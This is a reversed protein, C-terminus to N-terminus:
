APKRAAVKKAPAKKVPAKKVAGKKAAPRSASKGPAKKAAVKAPTKKATRAASKKVVKAAAKSGSAAASKARGAAAAKKTARGTRKGQAMVVSVKNSPPGTNYGLQGGGAVASVPKRVRVQAGSDPIEHGSQDQEENGTISAQESRQEATVAAEIRAAGCVRSYRHRPETRRAPGPEGNAP